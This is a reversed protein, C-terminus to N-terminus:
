DELSLRKFGRAVNQATGSNEQRAQKLWKLPFEDPIPEGLLRHIDEWVLVGLLCEEVLTDEDKLDEYDKKHMIAEFKQMGSYASARAKEFEQKRYFQNAEYLERHAESTERDAECNGRTRWYYYNVMKRYLEVARAVKVVDDPSKAFAKIDDRDMEM